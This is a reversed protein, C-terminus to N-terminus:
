GTNKLGASLGNITLLLGRTLLQTDGVGERIKKLFIIQFMNLPILYAERVDLTKKLTPNNELLSKQSTIKKILSESRSFEKKIENFIEHQGNHLEDVYSESIAMDTKALNMEVSSVLARFFKLEKHMKKIEEEKGEEIAREIAYGFGYWGTIIQRSQSWSFVWPIARLDKLTNSGSNRKSPRSGINMKSFEELPTSKKVYDVFNEENILKRYYDYSENSLFNMLDKWKESHSEKENLSAEIVSSLIIKLNIQSLDSNAFNDSIVEGQQTVKIKGNITGQPQALIAEGSPGGGRSSSGGRGHFITLGLSFKDALSSILSQSTYLDWQSKLIGGDKNSDSYGIMVEVSDGSEYINSWFDELIKISNELDEITELLPVINFKSFEKKNKILGTAIALYAISLLDESNSTMAVIWTNIADYGYKERSDAITEFTKVVEMTSKSLRLEDYNIPASKKIGNLLEKKFDSGNLNLLEKAANTTISADERIDMEAITLGGVKLSQILKKLTKIDTPTGKNNNLSDLVLELDCILDPSTYTNLKFKELIISISFRYPEESFKEYDLKKRELIFETNAKIYDNLEDSITVIHVSQSLRNILNNLVNKIRKCNRKYQMELIESTLRHTVNPNGDRDGGVWTGIKIPTIEKDIGLDKIINNVELNLEPIEDSVVNEIFFLNNDAEDYPSPKLQRLEDTQIIVKAVEKLEEQGSLESFSMGSSRELYRKKIIKHLVNVQNLIEPRAAETPHATFVLKIDLKELIESVQSKSHPKCIELIKNSFNLSDNNDPSLDEVRYIHEVVNAVHFYLTYARILRIAWYPEYEKLVSILTNLKDKSDEKKYSRSQYDDILDRVENVKILFEEGFEEELIDAVLNGIVKIEFNMESLVKKNEIGSM